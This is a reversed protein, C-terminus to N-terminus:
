PKVIYQSEIPQALNEHVLAQYIFAAIEGRTARRNPELANTKPYNVVLGAQTAAAVKGIAYGPIQNADRYVQFMGNPNAPTSLKLGRTLAALAQVRPIQQQPQFVNSPYGQLFGMKYAKDIASAAWFSSAVDKFQAAGRQDPTEGFAARLMSAFEARTVPQDPKFNGTEFGSIIKREALAAIFPTAWFTAPVDSFTSTTASPVTTSSATPNVTPNVTPNTTSGPNPVPVPVGFSTARPQGPQDSTNPLPVPVIAPVAADTGVAAGSTAGSLSSTAPSPAIAMSTPQNTPTVTTLGQVEGSAATSPSASPALWGSLGIAQDRRGLSWFLITGIVSFAVLIGIFDDFGLPRRSSPEPPPVDSM